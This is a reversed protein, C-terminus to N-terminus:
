RGKRALVYIGPALFSLVSDRFMLRKVLAYPLDQYKYELYDKTLWHREDFHVALMADLERRSFGAHAGFENRFRGRLRASWDQWNEKLKNAITSDWDTQRHAGVASVVRHRNPTGIFLWAGPAMVREISKLSAIPDDVHEIVHHYFVLSFHNDPFPLDCVSAAQYNVRPADLHEPFVCLEIDVAEVDASFQQQLFVAEHGGGCGAVLIRPAPFDDSFGRSDLQQCLFNVGAHSEIAESVADDHAMESGGCTEGCAGCGQTAEREAAFGNLIGDCCGNQNPSSSDNALSDAPQSSM